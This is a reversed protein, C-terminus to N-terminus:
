VIKLKLRAWLSEFFVEFNLSSSDVRRFLLQLEDIEYIKGNTM